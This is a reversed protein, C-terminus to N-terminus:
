KGSTRNVALGAFYANGHADFAVLPDSTFRYQKLPSAIGAPSMDTPYGPLLDNKWTRGGDVSRDYSNWRNGFEPVKRMDQASAVVVDPNLPDIAISPEVQQRNAADDNVVLYNEPVASVTPLLM